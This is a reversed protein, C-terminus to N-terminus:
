RMVKQKFTEPAPIVTSCNWIGTIEAYDNPECILIVLSQGRAQAQRKLDTTTNILAKVNEVDIGGPVQLIIEVDTGHDLVTIPFGEAHYPTPIPACAALLFLAVILYKM